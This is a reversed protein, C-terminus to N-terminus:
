GPQGDLHFHGDGQDQADTTCGRLIDEFWGSCRPGGANLNHTRTQRGKSSGFSIRGRSRWTAGLHSDLTRGETRTLFPYWGGFGTREKSAEADVRPSVESSRLMSACFHRRSLEVLSLYRMISPPDHPIQITAWLLAM